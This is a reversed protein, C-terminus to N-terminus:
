PKERTRRGNSVEGIGSLAVMVEATSVTCASAFFRSMMSVCFLISIDAGVAVAVSLGM